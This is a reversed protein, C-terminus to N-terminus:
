CFVSVGALRDAAESFVGSGPVSQRGRDCKRQVGDGTGGVGIDHTVFLLTHDMAVRQKGSRQSTTPWPLALTGASRHAM